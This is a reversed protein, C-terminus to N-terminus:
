AQPWDRGEDDAAARDTGAGAGDGDGHGDGTGDQGDETGGDAGEDGTGEDEGDLTLDGTGLAEGMGGILLSFQILIMDKNSLSSSLIGTDSYM